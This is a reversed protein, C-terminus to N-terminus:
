IESTGCQEPASERETPVAIKGTARELGDAQTQKFTSQEQLWAQYASDEDVVVVGRMTYHGTGCLEACFVDFTGTRTPTFWFYTVMGPVMDMKARFQPVYFDHLTDIPAFCSRSRGTSRCTCTRPRCWSM